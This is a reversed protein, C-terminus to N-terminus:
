LIFPAKKTRKRGRSHRKMNQFISMVAGWHKSDDGYTRRVLKKAREWMAEEAPTKVAGVPM